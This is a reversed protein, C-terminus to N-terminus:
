LVPTKRHIGHFKESCRKHLVDAFPQKQIRSQVKHSIILLAIM